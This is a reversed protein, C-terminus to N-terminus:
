YAGFTKVSFAATERTPLITIERMRRMDPRKHAGDIKTVIANIKAGEDTTYFTLSRANRLDSEVDMARMHSLIQAAHQRRSGFAVKRVGVSGGDRIFM